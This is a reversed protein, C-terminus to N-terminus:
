VHRKGRNRREPTIAKTRAIEISRKAGFVDTYLGDLKAEIVELEERLKSKVLTADLKQKQDKFRTIPLLIEQTYEQFLSEQTMIITWKHHKQSICYQTVMKALPFEMDGYIPEEVGNDDPPEHGIVERYSGRELSHLDEFTDMVGTFGALKACENRRIKIDPYRVQMPSNKDYLYVIYKIIKNIDGDKYEWFSPLQEDIITKFKHRIDVGDELGFVKLKLNKFEGPNM